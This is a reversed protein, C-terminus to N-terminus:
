AARSLTRKAKELGIITRDILNVTTKRLKADTRLLFARVRSESGKLPGANRGKFELWETRDEQVKTRLKPELQRRMSEVKDEVSQATKVLVGM